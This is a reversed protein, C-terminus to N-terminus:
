NDMNARVNLNFVVQKLLTDKTHMKQSDSLLEGLGDLINYSSFKKTIYAILYQCYDAVTKGTRLKVIDQEISWQKNFMFNIDYIDRAQFMKSDTVACLKHAFM